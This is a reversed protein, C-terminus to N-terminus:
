PATASDKCEPKPATAEQVCSVFVGSQDGEGRATIRLTPDMGSDPPDITFFFGPADALDVGIVKMAEHRDVNGPRGRWYNGHSSRHEQQARIFKDLVDRAVAVDAKPKSCAPLAGALALAAAISFLTLRPDKM